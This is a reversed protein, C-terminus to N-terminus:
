VSWGLPHKGEKIRETEIPGAVDNIRAVEIVHWIRRRNRLALPIQLATDEPNYLDTASLKRALLEWNWAQESDQQCVEVDLDWLWPFLKGSALADRWESPKHKFDCVLCGADEIRVMSDAQQGRCGSLQNEEM